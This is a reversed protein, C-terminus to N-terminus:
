TEHLVPVPVSVPLTHDADKHTQTLATLSGKPLMM